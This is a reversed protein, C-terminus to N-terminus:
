RQEKPVNITQENLLAELERGGKDVDFAYHKGGIMHVHFHPRLRGGGADRNAWQASVVHDLNLHIGFILVFNKV